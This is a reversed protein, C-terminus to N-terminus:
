IEILIFDTEIVASINNINIYLIDFQSTLYQLEELSYFFM